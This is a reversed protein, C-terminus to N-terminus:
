LGYGRWQSFLSYSVKLGELWNSQIKSGFFYKETYESNTLAEWLKQPTTAM